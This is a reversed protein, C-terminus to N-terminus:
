PDVDVALEYFLAERAAHRGGVGEEKKRKGALSESDRARTPRCLQAQAQNLTSSAAGGCLARNRGGERGACPWSPTCHCYVKRGRSSFRSATPCCEQRNAAAPRRGSLGRRPLRDLQLRVRDAPGQPRRLDGRGIGVAQAAGKSARAADRVWVHVRPRGRDPDGRPQRRGIRENM